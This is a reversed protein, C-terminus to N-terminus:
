ETGVLLFSLQLDVVERLDTLSNLDCSLGSGGFSCVFLHSYLSDCKHLLFRWPFWYQLLFVLQRIAPPEMHVLNLSFSWPSGTKAGGGSKQM